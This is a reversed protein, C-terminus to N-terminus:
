AGSFAKTLSEPSDLDAAVVETGLAALGTTKASQVDRTIARVTFGSNKDNLIARVLGGGQAGTAGVVAIINKEAM